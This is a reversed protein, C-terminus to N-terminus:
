HGLSRLRGGKRVVTQAVVLPLERESRGEPLLNAQHIATERMLDGFCTANAIRDHNKDNQEMEAFAVAEADPVRAEGWRRRYVWGIDDYTLSVKSLSPMRLLQCHIRRYDYNYRLKDSIHCVDIWLGYIFAIHQLEGFNELHHLLRVFATVPYGPGFYLTDCSFDVYITAAGFSRAQFRKTAVSRAEHNVFLTAPSAVKPYKHSPTEGGAFEIIRPGPLAYEWIKLRLEPPLIPFLSFQSAMTQQRHIPYPLTPQCPQPREEFHASSGSQINPNNGELVPGLNNISTHHDTTNQSLPLVSRTIKLVYPTPELRGATSQELNNHPTGFRGPGRM